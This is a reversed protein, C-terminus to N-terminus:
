TLRTCVTLMRVQQSISASLHCGTRLTKTRRQRQGQQVRAWRCRPSRPAERLRQPPRLSHQHLSHRHLSRLHPRRHHRSRPHLSGLLRPSLLLITTHIRPTARSPCPTHHLATSTATSKCQFLTRQQRNHRAPAQWKQVLRFGRCRKTRRLLRPTSMQCCTPGMTKNLPHSTSLSRALEWPLRQPLRRSRARKPRLGRHRHLHRSATHGARQSARFRHVHSLMLTQCSDPLRRRPYTLRATLPCWQFGFHQSTGGLRTASYLDRHSRARAGCSLTQHRLLQERQTTGGSTHGRVSRTPPKRRAHSVRSVRPRHLHRTSIKGPRKRRQSRMEKDWKASRLRRASRARSLAKTHWSLASTNPPFTIQVAEGSQFPQRNVLRARDPRARPPVWPRKRGITNTYRHRASRWPGWFLIPQWALQARSKEPLIADRLFGRSHDYHAVCALSLLM